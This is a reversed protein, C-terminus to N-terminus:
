QFANKNFKIKSSFIYSSRWSLSFSLFKFKYKGGYGRSCTFIVWAVGVGWATRSCANYFASLGNTITVGRSYDILGYLVALNCAAASAWGLIVVFQIFYFLKLLCTEIYTLSPPQVPLPGPQPRPEPPPDRSLSTWTSCTQPPGQITVALADHTITM